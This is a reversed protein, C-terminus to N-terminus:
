AISPANTLDIVSGLELAIWDTGNWQLLAYEGADNFTLTTAAGAFAGTVVADGGGDARFIIKKQQGMVSGGALTFADGGADSSIFTLFTAISIAGGVNGAIEEQAAAAPLIYDLLSMTVGALTPTQALLSKYSSNDVAVTGATITTTFPRLISGDQTYTDTRSGDVYFIHNVGSVEIGTGGEALPTIEFEYSTYAWKEVEYDIITASEGTYLLKSAEEALAFIIDDGHPLLTVLGAGINKLKFERGDGLAPGLNFDIATASNFIIQKESGNLTDTETIIRVVSGM